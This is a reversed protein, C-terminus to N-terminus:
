EKTWKKFLEKWNGRNICGRVHRACSDFIESLQVFIYTADTGKDINFQKMIEWILPEKKKMTDNLTAILGKKANPTNLLQMFAKDKIQLLINIHESPPFLSLEHALWKKDIKISERIENLNISLFGTISKHVIDAYSHYLMFDVVKKETNDM